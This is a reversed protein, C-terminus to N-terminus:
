REKLKEQLSEVMELAPKFKYKKILKALDAIEISFESPWALAKVGEM